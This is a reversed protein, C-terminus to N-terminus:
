VSAEIAPTTANKANVAEASKPAAKAQKARHVKGFKSRVKKDDLEDQKREKAKNVDDRSDRIGWQETIISRSIATRVDDRIWNLKRQANRADREAADTADIIDRANEKRSKVTSLSGAEAVRAKQLKDRAEALQEPTVKELEEDTDGDSSSSDTDDSDSEDDSNGQLLEDDSESSEDAIALLQDDTLDELEALEFQETTIAKVQTYTLTGFLAALIFTKNM